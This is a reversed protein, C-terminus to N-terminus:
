AGWASRRYPRYRPLKKAIGSPLSSLTVSASTLTFYGAIQHDEAVAVFCAAVRRRVDQTVQDKLYRNLAESDCNFTTRDHEADLSAVQFIAESM